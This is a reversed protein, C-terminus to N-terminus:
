LTKKGRIKGFAWLVFMIIAAIWLLHLVGSTIALAMRLVFWAIVLLVALWVLPHRM